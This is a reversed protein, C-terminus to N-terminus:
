KISWEIIDRAHKGVGQSVAQVKVDYKWAVEQMSYGDLWMRLRDLQTASINHSEVYKDINQRVIRKDSAKLRM